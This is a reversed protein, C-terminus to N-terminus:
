DAPAASLSILLVTATPDAAGQLEIEGEGSVVAADGTQVSAVTGNLAPVPPTAVPSGAEEAEPDAEPDPEAAPTGEAGASTLREQSGYARGITATGDEIKLDLAGDEVILMRGQVMAWEDTTAFRALQLRQVDVQVKDTSIQVPESVLPTIESGEPFASQDLTTGLELIVITAQGDAGAALTATTDAPAWLLPHGNNANPDAANPELKQVDGSDVTLAGQEVLVLLPGHKDGLSVEGSTPLVVRTLTLGLEGGTVAIELSPFTTYPGPTPIAQQGRAPAISGLQAAILILCVLISRARL